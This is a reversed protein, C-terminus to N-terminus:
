NHNIAPGGIEVRREVFHDGLTQLDRVNEAVVTRSPTFGVAPVHAEILAYPPNSGSACDV